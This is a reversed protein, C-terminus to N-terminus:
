KGLSKRSWKKYAKLATEFSPRHDPDFLMRAEEVARNRHGRQTAGFRVANEYILWDRVDTTPDSVDGAKGSRRKVDFQYPVKDETGTSPELMHALFKLVKPGPTLGLEFIATLPHVVGCRLYHVIVLDVCDGIPSGTGHHYESALTGWSNGPTDAENTEAWLRFSKDDM